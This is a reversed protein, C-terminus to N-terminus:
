ATVSHTDLCRNSHECHTGGLHMSQLRAVFVLFRVNFKSLESLALDLTGGNVSGGFLGGDGDGFSSAHGGGSGDAVFLHGSDSAHVGLSAEGEPGDFPFLSGSASLIDGDSGVIGDPNNGGRSEGVSPVSLVPGLDSRLDGGSDGNLGVTAWPDDGGRSLEESPVTDEPLLDAEGALSFGLIDSSSGTASDGNSGGVVLDEGEGLSAPFLLGARGLTDVDSRGSLKPNDVLLAIDVLLDVVARRPFVM